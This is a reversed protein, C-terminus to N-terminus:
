IIFANILTISSSDHIIFINILTLISTMNLFCDKEFIIEGLLIDLHIHDLVQSRKFVHFLLSSLM